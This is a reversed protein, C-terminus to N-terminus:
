AFLFLKKSHGAIKAQYISALTVYPALYTYVIYLGILQGALNTCPLTYCIIARILPLLTAVSVYLIRWKRTTAALYSLGIDSLTSMAGPPMALLATVKRSFDLGQIILTNFTALGGNPVQLAVIGFWILWTKVDLIAELIQSKKFSPSAMGTNDAANRQILLYKGRASLWKADPPTNPLFLFVVVAWLITFAGLTLFIIRWAAFKGHHYGVAWAVDDANYRASVLFLFSHRNCEVQHFASSTQFWQYICTCSHYGAGANNDLLGYGGM